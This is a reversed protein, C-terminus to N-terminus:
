RALRRRPSGHHTLSVAENDREVVDIGRKSARTYASQVPADKRWPHEATVESGVPARASGSDPGRRPWCVGGILNTAEDVRKVKDDFKKVAKGCSARFRLVLLTWAVSSVGLVVHDGIFTGQGCVKHLSM